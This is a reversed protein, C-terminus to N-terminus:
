AKVQSTGAPDTTFGSYALILVVVPHMPQKQPWSGPTAGATAEPTKRVLSHRCQVGLKIGQSAPKDKNDSAKCLSPELVRAAPM